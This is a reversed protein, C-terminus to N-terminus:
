IGIQRHWVMNIEVLIPTAHTCKQTRWANLLLFCGLMNSGYKCWVVLYMHLCPLHQVVIISFLLIFPAYQTSLLNLFCPPPTRTFFSSLSPYCPLLSWSPAILLPTPRHLSYSSHHKKKGDNLSLDAHMVIRITGSSVTEGKERKEKGKKGKKKESMMIMMM